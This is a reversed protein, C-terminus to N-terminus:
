KWTGSTVTSVATMSAVGINDTLKEGRVLYINVLDILIADMRQEDGTLFAGIGHFSLVSCSVAGHWAM